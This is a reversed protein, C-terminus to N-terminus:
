PFANSVSRATDVLDMPPPTPTGLVTAFFEEVKALPLGSHIRVMPLVRAAYPKGPSRLARGPTFLWEVTFKKDSDHPLDVREYLRCVVHTLYNLEPNHGFYDLSSQWQGGSGHAADGGANLFPATGLNSVLRVPPSQTETVVPPTRMVRIPDSATPQTPVTDSSALDVSAATDNKVTVDAKGSAPRTLSSRRPTAPKAVTSTAASEAVSALEASASRDSATSSLAGDSSALCDSSGLGPVPSSHALPAGGDLGDATPPPSPGRAAPFQTPYPSAGQSATMPFPTPPTSSAFAGYDGYLLLNVLSHIHSESTFYLRSRVQRDPSQVEGVGEYRNSQDLNHTVEDQFNNHMSTKGAASRLDHVLKQVLPRSIRSAINLKELRTIGYEQPVAVGAMAEALPYVETLEPLDAHSNHLVDYKLQDYIEPIKSLDYVDKKKSYLDKELKEWRQLMLSLPEDQYLSVSGPNMQRIREVIKKLALHIESLAKHPNGIIELSSRICPTNLPDLQEALSTAPADSSLLAHLRHKVADMAPRAATTDDLLSNVTKDKRVLSVLIPPLEGELDLLGKAFAAATMQVRGEDSSYLKLDHRFTSHLRLLGANQTSPYMTERFFHGAQQSLFNGAETLEGGWKLVLQAESVVDKGDRQTWELPKLQVKRNIGFIPSRTLVQEIQKMRDLEEDKDSAAAASNAMVLRALELVRELHPRTKLKLEQKPDSSYQDFLALFPSGSKLTMKMKQKPTRDGHRIVAIVCRLEPATGRQLHSSRSHAEPLPRLPHRPLLLQPALAGLILCRLLHACDDYYKPARKVFSWGNVDCVYSRGQTRLLDFGCVNQKFARVVKAAIDKESANLMIPCRIEKGSMDRLVKGDVVPSKRGEANAYTQGVTYVKIDTGGTPVFEEYIFSGEKHVSNLEPLFESARDQEKRFLYQAGGGDSSSFYVYIEHDEASAPKEVFPKHLSQPGFIITDDKEELAPAAGQDRSVVIHPPVPINNELLVRYVSRRDLLLKQMSIDNVQYPQHMAVYREVKDLPYGKSYFAILSQCPPWQDEPVHLLMSESLVWVALEDFSMLVALIKQMPPAMVKKQRAIILVSIRNEKSPVVGPESILQVGPISIDDLADDNVSGLRSKDKSEKRSQGKFSKLQEALSELTALTESKTEHVHLVGQSHSEVKSFEKFCMLTSDNLQSTTEGLNSAM